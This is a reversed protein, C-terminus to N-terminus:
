GPSSLSATSSRTASRPSLLERAMRGIEFCFREVLIDLSLMYPDLAAIGYRALHEDKRVACAVVQCQLGAM